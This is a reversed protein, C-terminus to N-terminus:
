LRKSRKKSSIKPFKDDKIFIVPKYVINQKKPTWTEIKDISKELNDIRYKIAQREEMLIDLKSNISQLNSWIMTGLISALIPMFYSKIKDEM